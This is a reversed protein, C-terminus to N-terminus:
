DTSGYPNPAMYDSNNPQGRAIRRPIPANYPDKWNIFNWPPQRKLGVPKEAEQPPWEVNDDCRPFAIATHPLAQLEVTQEGVPARENAPRINEVHQGAVSFVRGKRRNGDDIERRAALLRCYFILWIVLILVIVTVVIAAIEAPTLPGSPGGLSRDPNTAKPVEPEQTQTSM